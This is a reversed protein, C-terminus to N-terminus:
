LNDLMNRRRNELVALSHATGVNFSGVNQRMLEHPPIFPEKRRHEKHERHSPPTSPDDEEAFSVHNGRKGKQLFFDEEFTQPIIDREQFDSDEDESDEFGTSEQLHARRSLSGMPMNIPATPHKVTSSVTLSRQTRTQINNGEVNIARRDAEQSTKESVSTAREKLPQTPPRNMGLSLYYRNRVDQEATQSGSSFPGSLHTPLSSSM